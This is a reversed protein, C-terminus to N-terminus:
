CSKSLRSEVAVPFFKRVREYAVRCTLIADM